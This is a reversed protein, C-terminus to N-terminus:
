VRACSPQSQTWDPATRRTWTCKMGNGLRERLRVMLLTRGIREHEEPMEQRFAPHEPYPRWDLTPNFGRFRMESVLALFRAQLWPGYPLFYAMHGTNLTPLAPRAGTGAFRKLRFHAHPVMRPLERYEALLHRDCLEEPAIGVNIRTM